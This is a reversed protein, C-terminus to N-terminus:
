QRALRLGQLADPLSAGRDATARYPNIDLGGRRTYRAYVALSTLEGTAMLDTFIKEVCHEHFDQHQRFSVLYRLLGEASLRKGSYGVWVSAWDPQGTVPCNSKLLHSHLQGDDVREDSDFALLGADPQYRDLSIDLDDVCQGGFDAFADGGAVPLLVVRVNGGAAASLDRTMAAQVAVPSEFVTQNFSNLYYKFSKSEIIAESDAPVEFRAMAVAPLGGPRLWSLEYGNWIDVGVFPLVQGDVLGARSLSRPIPELLEPNYHDSYASTQGLKIGAM